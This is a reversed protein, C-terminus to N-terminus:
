QPYVTIAELAVLDATTVAAGAIGYKLMESNVTGHIIGIAADDEATDVSKSLVGKLANTPAEGDRVYPIVKGDADRAYLMGAPLVDQDALAELTKFVCPHTPSAVSVEDHSVDLIKGNM